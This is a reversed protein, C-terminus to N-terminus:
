DQPEQCRKSGLRLIRLLQRAPVGAAVLFAAAAKHRRLRSCGDKTHCGQLKGLMPCCWAPVLLLLMRVGVAVGLTRQERGLLLLLLVLWPSLLWGPLLPLLPPPPLLLTPALSAYPGGAHPHSLHLPHLNPCTLSPLSPPHTLPHLRHRFTLTPPEWRM